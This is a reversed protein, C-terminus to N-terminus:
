GLFFKSHIIGAMRVDSLFNLTSSALHEFPHYFIKFKYHWSNLLRIFFKYCVIDHEFQKLFIELLRHQSHSSTFFEKWRVTVPKRIVLSFPETALHPLDQQRSESHTKAGRKYNQLVATITIVCYPTNFPGQSYKRAHLCHM